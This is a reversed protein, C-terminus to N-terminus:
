VLLEKYHSDFDARLGDLLPTFTFGADKLKQNSVLLNENSFPFEDQNYREGDAASNYAIRPQKGVLEGMVEVLGKLTIMENGSCNFAGTLNKQLILVIIAAVDQAFIFQALAQGNGPLVLEIGKHIRSYIFNERDVYNNAGLIYGPRITAYKKGSAALVQECEVKGKGYDGMSPWLGTQSEETLPFIESKKYSVVSGFHVFLDYSLQELAMKTQAGTYACMDVVADFHDAVKFGNNRDGEIFRVGNPYNNNIQGRNFVVVDHNAQLLQSILLPGVFRSGGIILVKMHQNYCRKLQSRM